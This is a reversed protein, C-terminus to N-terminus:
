RKSTKTDRSWVTQSSSMEWGMKKWSRWSHRHPYIHLYWKINTIKFHSQRSAPLVAACCKVQKGSLDALDMKNLILLHPRVDLTEQFVPNRGSLPIDEINFVFWLECCRCPQISRSFSSFNRRSETCHTHKKYVVISGTWLNEPHYNMFSEFSSNQLHRCQGMLLWAKYQVLFLRSESDWGRVGFNHMQSLHTERTRIEFWLTSSMFVTRWVITNNEEFTGVNLCWYSINSRYSILM